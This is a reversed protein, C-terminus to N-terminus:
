EFIVKVIPLKANIIAKALGLTVNPHCNGFDIHFNIENYEDYEFESVYHIPNIHWFNYKKHFKAVSEILADVQEDTPPGELYIKVIVDPYDEFYPEVEFPAIKIIEEIPDYM